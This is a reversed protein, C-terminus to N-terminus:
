KAPAPPMPTNITTFYQAAALIAVPATVLLQGTVTGLARRSSAWRFALASPTEGARM